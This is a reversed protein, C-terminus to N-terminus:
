CKAHGFMYLKRRREVIICALPDSRDPCQAPIRFIEERICFIDYQSQLSSDAGLGIYKNNLKGELVEWQRFLMVCMDFKIRMAQLNTCHPVEFSGSDLDCILKEGVAPQSIRVMDFVDRIVNKFSSRNKLAM